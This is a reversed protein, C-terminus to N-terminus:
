GSEAADDDFPADLRNRFPFSHSSSRVPYKAPLIQTGAGAATM